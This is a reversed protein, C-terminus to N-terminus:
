EFKSWGLRKWMADYWWTDPVKVGDEFYYAGNKYEIYENNSFYTQTIKVGEKCVRKAEELLM